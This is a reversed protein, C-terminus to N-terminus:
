AAYPHGNPQVTGLFFPLDATPSALLLEHPRSWLLEAFGYRDLNTVETATRDAMDHGGRATLRTGSTCAAQRMAWVRSYDNSYGFISMGRATQLSCVLHRLRDGPQYTM